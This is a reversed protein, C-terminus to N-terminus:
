GDDVEGLMEHQPSTPWEERTEGGQRTRQKEERGANSM